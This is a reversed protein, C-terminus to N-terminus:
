EAKGLGFLLLGSSSCGKEETLRDSSPWRRDLRGDVTDRRRSPRSYSASRISSQKSRYACRSRALQVVDGGDDASKNLSIELEVMWQQGDEIRGDRRIVAICLGREEEPRDEHGAASTVGLIGRHQLRDSRVDVSHCKRGHGRSQRLDLRELTQEDEADPRNGQFGHSSVHRIDDAAGGHVDGHLVAQMNRAAPMVEFGVRQRPIILLGREPVPQPRKCEDDTLHLCM